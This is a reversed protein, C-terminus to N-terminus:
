YLFTIIIQLSKRIEKERHNFNNLFSPRSSNSIKSAHFIFSSMSIRKQLSQLLVFLHLFRRAIKLLSKRAEIPFDTILIDLTQDKVRNQYDLDDLPKGANRLTESVDAMINVQNKKLEQILAPTTKSNVYAIKKGVPIDIEKYQEWDNESEM